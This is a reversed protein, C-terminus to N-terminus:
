VQKMQPLISSILVIQFNNYMSTHINMSTRIYIDNNELPKKNLAICVFCERM